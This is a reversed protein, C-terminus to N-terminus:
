LYVEYITILVDLYNAGNKEIEDQKKRCESAIHGFRNCYHCQIQSKDFRSSPHQFSSRGCGRNLSQISQNIREKKNPSGCGDISRGRGRGRYNSRGRGRGFSVQSRFANELSSNNNIKM